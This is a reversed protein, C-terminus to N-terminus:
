PNARRKQILEETLAQTIGCWDESYLSGKPYQAVDVSPEPSGYVPEQSNVQVEKEEYPEECKDAESGFTLWSKKAVPTVTRPLTTSCVVAPIRPRRTRLGGHHECASGSHEWIYFLRSGPQGRDTECEIKATELREYRAPCAQNKPQQSLEFSPPYKLECTKVSTKVSRYSRVPIRNKQNVALFPIGITKAAAGDMSTDGAMGLICVGASFLRAAMRLSKESAGGGMGGGDINDLVAFRKQNSFNLANLSATASLGRTSVVFVTVNEKEVFDNLDKSTCSDRRNLTGDFDSFMIPNKCQWDHEGGVFVQPKPDKDNILNKENQILQIEGLNQAHDQSLQLYTQQSLDVYLKTGNVEFSGLSFVKNSFELVIEIPSKNSVNTPLLVELRLTLPTLIQVAVDPYSVSRTFWGKSTNSTSSGASSSPPEGKAPAVSAPAVPSDRTKDNDIEDASSSSPYPAATRQQAGGFEPLALLSVSFLLLTKNKLRSMFVTDERAHKVHKFLKIVSHPINRVVRQTL